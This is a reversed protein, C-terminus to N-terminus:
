EITWSTNSDVFVSVPTGKYDLAIEAEDIIIFADAAALKLTCTKSNGAEDTVIIQRTLVKTEENAPVTITISFPYVATAGPDGSIAAGNTTTISNAIYTNPLSINTLEGSGLSFTLRAANSVGSISVVKGEKDAAVQSDFTFADKTPKGAQSVTRSIDTVNAAKWILTSSRPNRGTHEATSSVTVFTDGSGSSPTVKVWNAKAM